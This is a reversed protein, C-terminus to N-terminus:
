KVVFSWSKRANKSGEASGAEIEVTHAGSTLKRPTFSLSGTTRRYQFGTVAQGDLYVHIDSKSLTTASDMVTAQVMPRSGSVNGVPSVSTITVGRSGGRSTAGRAGSRTRPNSKHASKQRRSRGVLM